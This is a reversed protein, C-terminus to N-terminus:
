KLVLREEHTESEEGSEIEKIMAKVAPKLEIEPIERYRGHKRIDKRFESKDDCLHRYDYMDIVTTKGKNGTSM